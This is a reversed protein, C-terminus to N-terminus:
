EREAVARPKFAVVNGADDDTFLDPQLPQGEWPLADAENLLETRVVQVGEVVSPFDDDLTVLWDCRNLVATALHVADPVKMGHAIRYETAKRAIPITVDLLLSERAELKLRVTKLMADQRNREAEDTATSQKYVEALTLVSAVVQVEGRDVLGMLPILRAAGPEGKIFALLASSDFLVRKLDSKAM